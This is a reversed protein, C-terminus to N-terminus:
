LSQSHGGKYQRAMSSSQRELPPLTRKKLQLHYYQINDRVRFIELSALSQHSCHNNAPILCKYLM